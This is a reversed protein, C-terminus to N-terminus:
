YDFYTMERQHPLTSRRLVFTNGESNNQPTPAISCLLKASIIGSLECRTVWHQYLLGLVPSLCCRGEPLCDWFNGVRSSFLSFTFPVTIETACFPSLSLAFLSRMKAFILFLVFGVLSHLRGLRARLSAWNLFLLQPRCFHNFIFNNAPQLM